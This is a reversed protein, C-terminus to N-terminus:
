RTFVAFDSFSAEAADVAPVIWCDFRGNDYSAARRHRQDNTCESGYPWVQQPQTAECPGGTDNHCVRRDFSRLQWFSRSTHGMHSCACLWHTISLSLSIMYMGAAQLAMYSTLYSGGVSTVLWMRLSLGMSARVHSVRFENSPEASEGGM